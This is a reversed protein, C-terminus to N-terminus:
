GPSARVKCPRATRARAAAIDPSPGAAVPRVFQLLRSGRRMTRVPAVARWLQLRRGLRASRTEACASLQSPKIGAIWSSWFMASFSGCRPPMRSSSCRRTSCRSLRKLGGRAKCRPASARLTNRSPMRASPEPSGNWPSITSRPTFRVAPGDSSAHRRPRPGSRASAPLLTSRRSVARRRLHRLGAECLVAATNARRGSSIGRSKGGAARRERRNM